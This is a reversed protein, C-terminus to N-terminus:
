QPNYQSFQVTLAFTAGAAFVRYSSIRFDWDGRWDPKGPGKDVPIVGGAFLEGSPLKSILRVSSWAGTSFYHACSMLNCEFSDAPLQSAGASRKTFSTNDASKKPYAKLFIPEAIQVIGTSSFM